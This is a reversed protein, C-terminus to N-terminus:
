APLTTRTCVMFYYPTHLYVEVKRAQVQSYISTLPWSSTKTAKGWPFSGGSGMSYSVPHAGSDTQDSLLLSSDRTGALFRVVIGHNHLRYGLRQVSQATGSSKSPIPKLEPIMSTLVSSERPSSAGSCYCIVCRTLPWQKLDFGESDIAVNEIEDCQRGFIGRRSYNVDVCSQLTFRV